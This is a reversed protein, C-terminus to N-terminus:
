NKETAEIAKDSLGNAMDMVNRLANMDRPSITKLFGLGEGPQLLLTGHEDCLMNEIEVGMNFSPGQGTKFKPGMELYEFAYLHLVYVQLDPRSKLPVLTTVRAPATLLSGSM